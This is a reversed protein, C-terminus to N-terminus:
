HILKIITLSFPPFYTTILLVIFCVALFPLLDKVIKNMTVNTMRCATFLNIAFPPTIMGIELNLLMIAAFHLPNVGYASALPGLIPTFLLISTNTELFMGVILLLINVIILFVGQSQTLGTMFETLKIPIGTYAIMQSVAHAVGIVMMISASSVTSSRATKWLRQDPLIKFIKPYLIWGILIAVAVAVAGAETATFVGGYVGGFIIIPVLLALLAPPLANTIDHFYTVISFKKVQLQQRRGVHIYNVIIYMITLLIGPGVTCLWVDLVPLGATIAYIVGPVSPPILIGLFGSAAMLTTTYEKSYGAKIMEPMMIGGIASITALSSGTITGFLASAVIAVAGLSGRIRGIIAGIFKLLANSIGGSAMLDGAFIFAPVALFAFSDIGGFIAPPIIAYDINAMAMAIMVGCCMAFAIPVRLFAIFLFVALFVILYIM